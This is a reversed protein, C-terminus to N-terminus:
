PRKIVYLKILKTFHDNIVLLHVNGKTTRLLDVLFDLSILELPATPRKRRRMKGCSRNPTKISLCIKCISIFNTIDEKVTSWWYNNYIRQITKFIGSHGSYWESHSLSIIEYRLSKPVVLLAKNKFKIKLVNDEIFIFHYINRLHKQLKVITKITKKM